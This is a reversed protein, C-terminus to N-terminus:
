EHSSPPSMLGVVFTAIVFILIAQEFGHTGFRIGSFTYGAAAIAHALTYRKVFTTLGRLNM